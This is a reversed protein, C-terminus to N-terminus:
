GACRASSASTASPSSWSRRRVAARRSPPGVAMLTAGAARQPRAARPSSASRRAWRASPTPACRSRRWSPRTTSRARAPARHGALVEDAVHSLALTDPDVLLLEEELGVSFPEGTASATRRRLGGHQRTSVADGGARGPRRHPRVRAGGRARERLRRHRHRRRRRRVRVRGARGRAHEDIALGGLTTTVGAVTEVTVHDEDRRVPAGAEEAADIM